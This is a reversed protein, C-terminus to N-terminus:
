RQLVRAVLLVFGVAALTVALGLLAESGTYGACMIVVFGLASFSAAIRGLTWGGM